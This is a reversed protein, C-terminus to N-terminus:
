AVGLLSPLDELAIEPMNFEELFSFNNFTGLNEDLFSTFTIADLTKIQIIADKAINEIKESLKKSEIVNQNITQFHAQLELLKQESNRIHNLTTNVGAANSKKENEEKATALKQLNQNITSNISEFGLIRFSDLSRKLFYALEYIFFCNAINQSNIKLDSLLTYEYNRDKARATIINNVFKGVYFLLDLVKLSYSLDKLSKVFGLIMEKKQKALDLNNIYEVYNPYNTKEIEAASAYVYLKLNKELSEASLKLEEPVETKKINESLLETDNISHNNRYAVQQSVHKDIDYKIFQISNEIYERQELQLKIVNM